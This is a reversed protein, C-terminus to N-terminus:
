HSPAIYGSPARLMIDPERYLVSIRRESGDPIPNEAAFTLISRSQLYDSLHDVMADFEGITHPFYVMGGTVEVIHLADGKTDDQQKWMAHGFGIPMCLMHVVPTGPQEMGRRWEEKRAASGHDAGDSILLIARSKNAASTRMYDSLQLLADRLHQPGAPAISGLADVAARHASTLKQDISLTGSYHALCVEDNGPLRQLLRRSKALMTDLRATMSGSADVLVCISQPEPISTLATIAHPQKGERVTISGPDLSTIPNGQSDIALVEMRVQPWSSLDVQASASYTVSLLLLSIWGLIGSARM